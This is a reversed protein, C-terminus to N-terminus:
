KVIPENVERLWTNHCVATLFASNLVRTFIHSIMMDYIVLSIHLKCTYKIESIAINLFHKRM